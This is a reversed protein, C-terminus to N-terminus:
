RRERLVDAALNLDYTVTEGIVGRASVTICSIGSLGLRPLERFFTVRGGHSGAMPGRICVALDATTVAGSSAFKWRVRELYARISSRSFAGVLPDNFRYDHATAAFIKAPNVEAWGELYRDLLHGWIKTEAHAGDITQVIRADDPRLLELAIPAGLM